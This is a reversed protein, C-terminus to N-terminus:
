AVDYSYTGPKNAVFLARAKQELRTLFLETGVKRWKGENLIPDESFAMDISLQNDISVYSANDPLEGQDKMLNRMSKVWPIVFAAQISDLANIKESDIHVVSGGKNTLIGGVSDKMSNMAMQMTAVQAQLGAILKQMETPDLPATDPLIGGGGMASGSNPELIIVEEAKDGSKTEESGSM